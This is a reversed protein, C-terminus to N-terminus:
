GRVAWTEDLVPAFSRWTSSTHDIHCIHFPRDGHRPTTLCLELYPSQLQYAARRGRRNLVIESQLRRNIALSFTKYSPAVTGVAECARILAGYVPFRRKQKLDRLGNRHHGDDAGQNEGFSAIGTEAIMSVPCFVSIAM